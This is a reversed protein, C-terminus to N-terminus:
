CLSVSVVRCVEAGGFASAPSLLRKLLQLLIDLQPRSPVPCLSPQGPFGLAEADLGPGGFAALGKGLLHM